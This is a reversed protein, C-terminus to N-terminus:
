MELMGTYAKYNYLNPGYHTYKDSVGYDIEVGADTKSKWTWYNDNEREEKVPQTIVTSKIEMNYAYEYLIDGIKIDEVVVGGKTLTKSLGAM